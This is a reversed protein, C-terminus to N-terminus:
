ATKRRSQFEAIELIRAIAKEQREKRRGKWVSNAKHVEPTFKSSKERWEEPTQEQLHPMKRRYYQARGYARWEEFSWGEPIRSEKGPKKRGEGAEWSEPSVFPRGDAAVRDRFARYSQAKRKAWEAPIGEAVQRAQRLTIRTKASLETMIRMVAPPRGKVAMM